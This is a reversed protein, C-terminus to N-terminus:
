CTIKREKLYDLVVTRIKELKEEAKKNNKILENMTKNIIDNKTIYNFSYEFNLDFVLGINLIAKDLKTKVDKFYIQKCNLIDDYVKNSITFDLNNDIKKLLFLDLIDLKDADRIIKCFMITREDLSTNYSFKNHYKIAEKLIECDVDKVIEQILKDSEIINLAYNGHDISKLDSFTHYKTYQYFRAIDHLLGITKCLNIDDENLRLSRGIKECFEVVRLTHNYKLEIMPESFDYNEVYETFQKIKEEM